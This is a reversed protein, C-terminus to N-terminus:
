FVMCRFQDDLLMEVERQLVDVDFVMTSSGILFINKWLENNQQFNVEVFMSALASRMCINNLLWESREPNWRTREDFEFFKLNEKSKDAKRPDDLIRQSHNLLNELHSRLCIFTGNTVGFSSSKMINLFSFCTFKFNNENLCQYLKYFREKLSLSKFFDWAVIIDTTDDVIPFPHTLQTFDFNQQCIHNLIDHIQKSNFSSDHDIM